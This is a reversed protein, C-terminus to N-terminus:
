RCLSPSDHVNDVQGLPCVAGCSCRVANPQLRHRLDISAAAVGHSREVIHRECERAARERREHAGGPGALAREQLARRTEISGCRAGDVEAVGVERREALIRQAPEPPFGDPEDKLREIEDRRQRCGLVDGQRKPERLLTGVLLPEAFHDITDAKAVRAFCLGPSNEPPCCCRTAIARASTVRGRTIKASSGVPARSVRVPRSMRPSNRSDTSPSSCVTAITVCSGLAATTRRCRQRGRRRGPRRCSSRGDDSRTASRMVCRSSQAMSRIAKMVSAARLLPM